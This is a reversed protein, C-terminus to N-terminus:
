SLRPHQDILDQRQGELDARKEELIAIKDEIKNVNEEIRDFHEALVEKAENRSSAVPIADMLPKKATEHVKIGVILGIIAVVMLYFAPVYLSGTRDVLYAALPPTIGAILVSINFSIALTRFRVETPFLAPLIAAMVGIFCCLILGLLGLGLAIYLVEHHQIMWFCPIALVFLAVSGGVLFPKRGIKDSIYGVLPQIFLIFIMVAMIILIGHDAAYGLNVSLYTPMYTLLMYYTTNTVIVIGCCLIINNLNKTFIQWASSTEDRGAEELNQFTPSEDLSKRLYLGVLGLPLSLLFPIRWGWAQMNENGIVLTLIAVVGAGVLFGAISGFDLWSALFGRKRDPSYESVFVVAGSYEGGVSLGQIIKALLLLVPAFVGIAQYSPIIGICFTSLSMMIITFTLIFKRGVKDGLVGFIVGGLPRFLFPVSFTALTAILQVSEPAGGFFVKSIIIALFGYVSFDFWEIANGLGAASIVKKLEGNSVIPIDGVNLPQQTTDSM